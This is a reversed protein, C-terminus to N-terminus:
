EEDDEQIKAGPKVFQVELKVPGGASTIDVSDQYMGHVRALQKLADYADQFDVKPNGNSDLSFSKIFEKNKLVAEENLELAGTHPNKQLVDGMTHRAIKTFRQLVEMKTMSNEEMRMQIYDRMQPLKLKKTALQSVPRGLFGAYKYAATANFPKGTAKGTLYEDAMLRQKGTLGYEDRAKGSHMNETPNGM